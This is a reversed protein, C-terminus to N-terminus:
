VELRGVARRNLQVCRLRTLASALTLELRQNHERESRERGDYRNRM